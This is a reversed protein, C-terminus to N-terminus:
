EDWVAWYWLSCRYLLQQTVARFFGKRTERPLPVLVLAFVIYLYFFYRKRREVAEGKSCNERGAVAQGFIARVISM